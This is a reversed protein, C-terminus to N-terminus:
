EDEQEKGNLELALADMEESLVQMLHSIRKLFHLIKGKKEDM